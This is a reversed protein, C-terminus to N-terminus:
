KGGAAFVLVIMVPFILFGTTLLRKITRARAVAEADPLAEFGNGYLFGILKSNNSPTNNTFLGPEGLQRWAEPLHNRLYKFFAHVKGLYVIVLVMYFLWIPTVALNAITKVM